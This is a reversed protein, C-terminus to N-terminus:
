EDERRSMGGRWSEETKQEKPKRNLAHLKRVREQEEQNKKREKWIEAERCVSCLFDSRGPDLIATCSRCRKRDLMRDM